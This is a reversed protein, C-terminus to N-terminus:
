GCGLLCKKQLLVGADVAVTVDGLSASVVAIGSARITATVRVGAVGTTVELGEARVLSITAIGPATSPPSIRPDPAVSVAGRSPPAASSSSPRRALPAARGEPVPGKAMAIVHEGARAVRPRSVPAYASSRSSGAPRRNGPAVRPLPTKRAAAGHHHGLQAVTVGGATALLLSTAAARFAPAPPHHLRLALGSLRARGIAGGFGLVGLLAGLGAKGGVMPILLRVDRRRTELSLEFSRCHNCARMHARVGRARLTRRDGDSIVRQIGECSLTRGHECQMLASRAEFVTQMVASESGGLAGAIEDYGLGSFERMILAGRQREPLSRLDEVLQRLRARAAATEAVDPASDAGIRELTGHPQRRRVLSISENHAVRFLWASLKLQPPRRPLARLAALMASQAADEADQPVLLIGRCYRILAPLYRAYVVEFAERDGEAILGALQEDSLRRLPRGFQGALRDADSRRRGLGRAGGRGFATVPPGAAADSLHPHDLLQRKVSAEMVIEKIGEKLDPRVRCAAREIM